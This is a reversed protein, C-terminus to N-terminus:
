PPARTRLLPADRARAQFFRLRPEAGARQSLKRLLAGAQCWRVAAAARAASAADAVAAGQAEALLAAARTCAAAAAAEADSAPAVLEQTCWGAELPRAM